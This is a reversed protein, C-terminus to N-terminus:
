PLWLHQFGLVSLSNESGPFNLSNQPFITVFLLTDDSATNEFVNAASARRLGQHAVKCHQELNCKHCNSNTTIVQQFTLKHSQFLRSFKYFKKRRSHPQGSLTPCQVRGLRQVNGSTSAQIHPMTVPAKCNDALGVWPLSVTASGQQAVNQLKLRGHLLKFM